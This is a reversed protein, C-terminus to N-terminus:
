NTVLLYWSAAPGMNVIEVRFPATRAPKWRVVSNVSSLTDIAVVTGDPDRVRVHVIDESDTSVLVVAPENARFTVPEVQVTHGQVQSYKHQPGDVRGKPVAQARKELSEIVSLLAGNSGAYNRADQLLGRLSLSKRFSSPAAALAGNAEGSVTAADAPMERMPNAILMEVASVLALASYEQRGFSAVRLALEIKEVAAAASKASAARARQASAQPSIAAIFVAVLVIRTQWSSKSGITTRM